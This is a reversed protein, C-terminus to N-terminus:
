KGEMAFKVASTHCVAACQIAAYAIQRNSNSAIKDPRLYFQLGRQVIGRDGQYRVITIAHFQWYKITQYNMGYKTM